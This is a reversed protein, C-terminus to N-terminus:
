KHVRLMRLIEKGYRVRGTILGEVEGRGGRETKSFGKQDRGGM